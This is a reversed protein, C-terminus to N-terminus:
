ASAVDHELVGIVDHSQLTRTTGRPGARTLRQIYTQDDTLREGTKDALMVGSTGTPDRGLLGYLDQLSLVPATMHVVGKELVRHQPTKVGDTVAARAAASRHLSM